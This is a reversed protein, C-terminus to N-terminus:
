RHLQVVDKIRSTGIGASGIVEGWIRIDPFSTAGSDTAPETLFIEYFEEIPVDSETGNIPNAACNIGGAIIVRRDRNPSASPACYPRGTEAKGAPLLPGGSAADLEANYMEWRSGSLAGTLATAAPNALPTAGDHNTSVYGAQDWDRPATGFSGCTGADICVDRGLRTTDPSNQGLDAAVCSDGPAPVQGKVVNPAPAFDPTNQLGSMAANYMDFRVNLAHDISWTPLTSEIDVGTTPYCGSVGGEAGILCHILAIGGLGDCAGSADVTITDPDIVGFDGASWNGVFPASRLSLMTGRANTANYGATNPLCFLLPTVNCAYQTFGAVASASVTNRPTGGGGRLASFAAAFTLGVTRQNVEVRVYAARTPDNTAGSLATTDSAPLSAFFSLTYDSAGRLETGGGGTGYTQTDSILTAAANRARAIADPQRDLEGAAALAVSDAYSQLETQTLDIRGMDFSMAVIGLLATLSVGFFVLMTGAESRILERIIRLRAM